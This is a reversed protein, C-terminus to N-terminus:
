NDYSMVRGTRHILKIASVRKVNSKRLISISQANLTRKIINVGILSM